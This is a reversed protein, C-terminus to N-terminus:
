VDLLETVPVFQRHLGIAKDSLGFAMGMLQTFYVIPLTINDNNYRIIDTQYCELNFQCLPCTTAMMNAGKRHAEKLLRYTLRFGVDQLTAILMGGCCHTRLPWDVAEAGLAEILDDLTVPYHAKDFAEYPRVVQCGYNSVVKHTKLPRVVRERIKALGIDNMVVDLPHRVITSADLTLGVAGFAKQLRERGAADEAIYKQTKLLVLYCASCPVVLHAEGGGSQEAALVLNRAALAHAKDEDVAMYSTAGCCNWDEVEEMHIGLADFVALLSEEYARGSSKLSCGPYYLYKM